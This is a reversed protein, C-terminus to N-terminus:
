RSLHRAERSLPRFHCLAVIDFIDSQGFTGAGSVHRRYTSTSIIPQLHADCKYAHLLQSEISGYTRAVAAAMKPSLHSLRTWLSARIWCLQLLSFESCGHSNTWGPLRHRGVPLLKCRVSSSSTMFAGGGGAGKSLARLVTMPEMGLVLTVAPTGIRVHAAWRIRLVCM